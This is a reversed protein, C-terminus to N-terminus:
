LNFYTKYIVNKKFFQFIQICSCKYFTKKKRAKQNVFDVIIKNINLEQSRSREINLISLNSLREQGM